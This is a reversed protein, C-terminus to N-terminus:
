VRPGVTEVAFSFTDTSVVAPFPLTARDTYLQDGIRFEGDKFRVGLGEPCRYLGIPVPADPITVHAQPGPGLMLENGMLLVGDVPHLLRHGSALELRATASVSVPRHFLFQCSSGLTVRDGAALVARSVDKGNVLVGKGSEIVYGEGDRTIEAHLRSVDAFLPIDIPGELVAQGFTVRPGTCVLYGGVGDVWLLFRKPLPSAPPPPLPLTPATSRSFPPVPSALLPHPPTAAPAAAGGRERLHGAVAVEIKRGKEAEARRGREDTSASEAQHAETEPHAAQWAKTRLVQADRHEPAVALVAEAAALAERWRRAEAADYLRGVAARFREHREEIARRYRDLGGAPCPLKPRLRDIESFARLFEGKDALEAAMVWDQAAEETRALDPNKVGRERLRAVAEIADLPRGAELTGRAQVLGFRTLTLRLESVRKEGTNLTEAALLEGWAADPNEADLFRQGRAVYARVVDRALRWAKHYGEALLPEILRHAEDPRDHAVAERAQRLTLWPSAM